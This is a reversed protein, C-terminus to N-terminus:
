VKLGVQRDRFDQLARLAWSYPPTLLQLSYLILCFYINVYVHFSRQLVAPNKCTFIHGDNSVYGTAGPPLADQPQPEHFMNLTCFSPQASRSATAGHETGGCLSDSHVITLM